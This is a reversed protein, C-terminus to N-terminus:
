SRALQTLVRIVIRDCRAGDFRFVGGSASEMELALSERLQARARHLRSRVTAAPISLCAATEEVSMEEVERMMFVTRFHLPLADIKRELLARLQSRIAQEEAPEQEVSSLEERGAFKIVVDQRKRRRLRGLAENVVIRTLWTSLQATGQFGSMGRFAALYAEQLADEAEADDKLIARAVRFLKPNHRRMVIEFAGQDGRAVAQALRLDDATDAPLNASSTSATM